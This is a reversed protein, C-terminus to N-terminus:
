PTIARLGLLKDEGEYLEGLGIVSQGASNQSVLALSLTDILEVGPALELTTVLNQGVVTRLSDLEISFVEIAEDISQIFYFNGSAARAMAILLDENFGEGFGLTTTIIGEEAKQSATTTLIQPDSIGVNALGDTLLLVRNIKQSDLQEKVYECGQLWGGSLNTLGGARVRRIAKKLATKDTVAQPPIITDVKDDYVVLSLIDSPELQDV